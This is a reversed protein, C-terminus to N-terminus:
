WPCALAGGPSGGTSTRSLRERSGRRPLTAARVTGRAVPTRRRIPPPGVAAPTPRPTLERTLTVARTPAVARTLTVARTRTVVPLRTGAADLHWQGVSTSSNAVGGGM